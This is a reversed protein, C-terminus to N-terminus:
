VVCACVVCVCVCVSQIIQVKVGSGKFLFNSGFMSVMWDNVIMGRDSRIFGRLGFCVDPLKPIYAPGKVFQLCYHAGRAVVGVVFGRIGNQRGLLAGLSPNASRCLCCRGPRRKRGASRQPEDHQFRGIVLSVAM